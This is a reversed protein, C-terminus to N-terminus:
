VFLGRQDSMRFGQGVGPKITGFSFGVQQVERADVSIQSLPAPEPENTVGASKRQTALGVIKVRGPGLLLNLNSEVGSVQVEQDGSGIAVQDFTEERAAHGNRVQHAIEVRQCAQGSKM